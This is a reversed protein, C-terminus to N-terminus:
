LFLRRVYLDMAETILNACETHSPLHDIKKSCYLCYKPHSTLMHNVIHITQFHCLPCFSFTKKKNFSHVQIFHIARETACTFSLCCFNCHYM